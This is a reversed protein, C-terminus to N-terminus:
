RGSCHGYRVALRCVSCKLYKNLLYGYQINWGKSVTRGIYLVPVGSGELCGIKYIKKVFVGVLNKFYAACEWNKEGKLIGNM